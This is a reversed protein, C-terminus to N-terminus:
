VTVGPAVKEMSRGNKAKAHSDTGRHEAPVLMDCQDCHYPCNAHATRLRDIEQHAQYLAQLIQHLTNEM